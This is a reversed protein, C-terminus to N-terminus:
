GRLVIVNNMGRRKREIIQKAELKDLLRTMGVKGIGLREMLDAQFITGNEQQILKVAEKEQKDLKSLDLPKKKEIKTLTKTKMIITENEKAFILFLGIVLVLGAIALSVYTQVAITDYMSCTPGHTCTEGVIDKLGINFIWVIVGIVVAIGTVLFGVSRNKMILFAFIM